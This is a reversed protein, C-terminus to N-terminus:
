TRPLRAHIASMLEKTQADLRDRLRGEADIVQRGIIELRTNIEVQRENLRKRDEQSRIMEQAQLVTAGDIRDIDKRNDDIRSSWGNIKAEIRAEHQTVSDNIDKKIEVILDDFKKEVRAMDKLIPENNSRRVLVIFQVIMFIGAVWALFVSPKINDIPQIQSLLNWINWM